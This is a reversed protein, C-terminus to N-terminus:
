LWENMPVAEECFLRAALRRVTWCFAFLEIQEPDLGHAILM